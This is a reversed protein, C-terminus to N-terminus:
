GSGQLNGIGCDPEAHDAGANRVCTVRGGSVQFVRDAREITEPRHAILVRTCSLLRVAKGVDIETLPDLHATAEDLFLAVPERYLARALMVRQKQGGSLVSGMDGVPTDYGMPLREVEARIGAAQAADEVRRRDPEPDFMCINDMLSGAFLADDQAVSGIERRWRSVGYSALPQGNILVEGSLPSLLGLMIKMLTTKGGGSPGVLGVVEGPEVKFTVGRLIDPEGPAYRFWVNRLEITAASPEERAAMEHRGSTLQESPSLAIDAIRALHMDLLRYSIAQQVLRLTADLFNQRYAQLAFIMGVTLGGGMAFRIALYVFVVREVGMVLGEAATFAANLRAAKIEANVAEAKKQQWLRQRNAEEGFAKITAIGRISEIFTSNEHAAATILDVNAHKLASFSAVRLSTALVLATLAILSLAPSYVFILAFTLLAMIGDILSAILGQSLLDSIPRTSGFRSIVDGVHRREFWTLPLRLLQRFLNVTVQYSLSVSLRLLVLTRVWTTLMAIIAVGGFGLALMLLLDVDGTPLVSDLSVQLLFPTVLVVLQLVVSLFFVQLMTPWFGELRSWLQRIRLKAPSPQSKFTESKVLEIAVGTFRRAMEASELVRAGSAPDHIHFRPGRLGSRIRTLVVFHNLDWHLIAPLPLHLLSSVEGRLPRGSLGLDESIRLLQRLTAGKLSMQFRRRLSILDIKLGHYSAVMAICALGCESGEAQRLM